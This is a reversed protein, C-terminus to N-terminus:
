GTRDCGGHRRLQQLRLVDFLVDRAGLAAAGLEFDELDTQRRAVKIGGLRRRLENAADLFDREELPRLGPGGSPPRIRGSIVSAYKETLRQRRVIGASWQDAPEGDLANRERADVGPRGTSMQTCSGVDSM